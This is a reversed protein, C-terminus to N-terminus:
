GGNASPAIPGTVTGDPLVDQYYVKQLRADDIFLAGETKMGSEKRQLLLLSWSM